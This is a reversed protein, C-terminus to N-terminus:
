IIPFALGAKESIMENTEQSYHLPGHSVPCILLQEYEKGSTHGSHAKKM